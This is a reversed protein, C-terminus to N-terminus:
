DAPPAELWALVARGGVLDVAAIAGPRVKEHRGAALAVAEAMEPNHGVLAAGAGARRALALLEQGSSRGSALADDEEIRVGAGAALIEATERARRYPSTLIRSISLRQNLAGALARFRRRGEATLRRADDGAGGEEEAKAHRVLYVRAAPV